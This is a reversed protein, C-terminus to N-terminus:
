VGSGRLWVRSKPVGRRIALQFKGGDRSVKWQGPQLGGVRQLIKCYEAHDPPYTYTGEGIIGNCVARLRLTITGDEAMTAYEDAGDPEVDGDDGSPAAASSDRSNQVTPKARTEIGFAMSLSAAFRESAARSESFSFGGATDSGPKRNGPGSAPSGASANQAAEKQPDPLPVGCSSCFRAGSRVEFGCNSCFLSAM